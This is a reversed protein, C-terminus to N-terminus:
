VNSLADEDDDVMGNAKAKIIMISMTKEGEVTVMM